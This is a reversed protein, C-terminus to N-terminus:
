DDVVTDDSWSPTPATSPWRCNIQPAKFRVSSQWAGGAVRFQAFWTARANVTVLAAKAYVHGFYGPCLYDRCPNAAFDYPRGPGDSTDSSGDGFHWHVTTVHARFDVHQGLLTASGLPVEGDSSKIWTIIQVNVLATVTPPPASGIVPRPLIRTVAGSAITATVAPPPPPALMGFQDQCKAGTVPWRGNVLTREVVAVQAQGLGTSCPLGACEPINAACIDIRVDPKSQRGHTPQHGSCEVTGEAGVTGAGLTSRLSVGNPPVACGAARAPYAVVVVSMLLTLLTLFWGFIKHM